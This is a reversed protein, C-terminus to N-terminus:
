YCYGYAVPDKVTPNLVALVLYKDYKRVTIDFIGENSDSSSHVHDKNFETTVAECAGHVNPPTLESYLIKVIEKAPLLPGDGQKKITFKRL